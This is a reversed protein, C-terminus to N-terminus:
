PHCRQGFTANLAQWLLQAFWGRSAWSTADSWPQDTPRDPVAGAYSVFTLLDQRHPSSAPINRYVSGDDATAPMWYGKAVMARTIVSVAQMQLLAGTPQYTGDGYGQVVQHYALTGVAAWLGPDISGQDRFPAAHQEGEWGMARVLFGAVQARMVLDQPGVLGNGYGRVIGRAAMQVLAESQPGGALDSFSPRPAFAATVNYDRTMPLACPNAWGQNKGDIMWGLFLAGADPTATLTATSNRPLLGTGPNAQASGPGSTNLMLRPFLAAHANILGAGFTTDRGPAGLDTATDQLRAAILDPTLAPNRASLLAALASVYPAAMSTGSMTRYNSYSVCRPLTATCTSLIDQGPATVTIASGYNAWSPKTGDDASATVAVVGNLVAPYVPTVDLNAGSNGAAVVVVIGQARANNIVTQLLTIEEPYPPFGPLSGLSLNIVRVGPQTTAYSIADAINYWYGIGFIDLAKLPLVTAGWTLGAVGISNNVQAAIIGAVHTGHGNDDDAARPSCPDPPPVPAPSPQPLFTCGPLLAPALDPHDYDAGSDITAVVAGTARAGMGWAEPAHIAPLAWQQAYQPDNPVLPEAELQVQYNRAVAAIMPDAALQKRYEDERGPPVRVLLVKRSVGVATVQVEQGHRASLTSAVSNAQAGARPLLVLEGTRAPIAAAVRAVPLAPFSTVVTLMALFLAVCYRFPRHLKLPQVPKM